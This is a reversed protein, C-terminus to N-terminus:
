TVNCKCFHSRGVEVMGMAAIVTAQYFTNISLTTNATVNVTLNGSDDVSPTILGTKLVEQDQMRGNDTEEVPDMHVVYM